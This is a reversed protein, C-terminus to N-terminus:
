MPTMDFKSFSISKSGSPVFRLITRHMEIFTYPVPPVVSLNLLHIVTLYKWSSSLLVWYLDQLQKMAANHSKGEMRALVYLTFAQYLPLYILRELLLKRVVAFSADESIAGELFSYFYHPITGGFILGYLGYALLSHHNIVKEGSLKQSTYNGATAIISCTIAKTRLPHEFLQGFYFSLFNVLPKSLVM